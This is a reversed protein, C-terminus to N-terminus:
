LLIAKGFDSMPRSGGDRDLFSSVTSWTSLGLPTVFSFKENNKELCSNNGRFIIHNSVLKFSICRRNFFFTPRRRRHDELYNMDEDAALMRQTLLKEGGPVVDSLLTM